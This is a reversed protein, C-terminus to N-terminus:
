KFNLKKWYKNLVFASVLTICLFIIGKVLDEYIFYAFAFLMAYIMISGAIMAIIAQPVDWLEKERLEGEELLENEIHRWGPGGPKVKLYFEKLKEKNTPKTYFAVLLWGITTLGVGIILQKAASLEPLGLKPYVGTILIAIIFSIIMAALETKANIRWWFWRLIYILGTGAGIQLIINFAQLANELILAFFVAFVMLVVTSIRGALVLQKETADKQLFRKYFDNVLYSSGWNLHTSVTSMYAAILAAVM